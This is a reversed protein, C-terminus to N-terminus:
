YGSDHLPLGNYFLSTFAKNNYINKEKWKEIARYLEIYEAEFYM